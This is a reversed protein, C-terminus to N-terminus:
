KVESTFGCCVGGFKMAGFMLDNKICLYLHVWGPKQYSGGILKIQFYGFVFLESLNKLCCM